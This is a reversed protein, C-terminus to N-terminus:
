MCLFVDRSNSRYRTIYIHIHTSYINYLPGSPWAPCTAPRARSYSVALQTYICIYVCVYLSSPPLLEPWPFRVKPPLMGLFHTRCGRDRKEGEVIAKRAAARIESSSSSVRPSSFSFYFSLSLPERFSIPSRARARARPVLALILFSPFGM